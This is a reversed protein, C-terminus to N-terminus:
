IMREIMEDIYEISLDEGNRFKITTRNRVDIAIKAGYFLQYFSHKCKCRYSPSSLIAWTLKNHDIVKKSHLEIYNANQKFFHENFGFIVQKPKLWKKVCNNLKIYM